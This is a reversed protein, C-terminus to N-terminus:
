SCWMLEGLCTKWKNFPLFLGYIYAESMICAWRWDCRRGNRCFIGSLLQAEWRSERDFPRSPNLGRRHEESSQCILDGLDPGKISTEKRYNREDDSKKVSVPLSTFVHKDKSSTSGRFTYSLPLFQVVLFFTIHKLLLNRCTEVSPSKRFAIYRSKSSTSISNYSSKFALLRISRIIM